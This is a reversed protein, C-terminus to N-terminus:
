SRCISRPCPSFIRMSTQLKLRCALSRGQYCSPSLLASHHLSKVFLGERPFCVKRISVFPLTCFGRKYVPILARRFSHALWMEPNKTPVGRGENWDRIPRTLSAHASARGIWYTADMVGDHGMCKLAVIWRQSYRTPVSAVFPALVYSDDRIKLVSDMRSHLAHEASVLM